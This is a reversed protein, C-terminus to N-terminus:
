TPKGYKEVWSRLHSNAEVRGQTKERPAKGVKKEKM